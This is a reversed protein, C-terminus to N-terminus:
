DVKFPCVHPDYSALADCDTQDQVFEVIEQQKSYFLVDSGIVMVYKSKSLLYDDTLKTALVNPGFRINKIKDSIDTRQNIAKTAEDWRLVRVNNFKSELLAISREDFDDVHVIVRPCLGSHYLFSRLCVMLPWLMSKQCLVHVEFNEDIPGDEYRPFRAVLYNGFYRNRCYSFFHKGEGSGFLRKILYTETKIKKFLKKFM